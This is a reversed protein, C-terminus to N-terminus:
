KKKTIIQIVGNFGRMGYLQQGEPGKLVNVYKIDNVDVASVADNYSNGIAQNDIVFLPSNEGSISNAGRIMITVDNGRQDIQLGPIRRLYDVLQM